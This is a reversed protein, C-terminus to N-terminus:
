WLVYRDRDSLPEDLRRRLSFMHFGMHFSMNECEDGERRFYNEALVWGGGALGRDVM